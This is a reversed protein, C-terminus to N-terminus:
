DTKEKPKEQILFLRDFIQKAKQLASEPFIFCGGITLISEKEIEDKEEEEVAYPGEPPKYGVANLDLSMKKEKVDVYVFSVLIYLSAM